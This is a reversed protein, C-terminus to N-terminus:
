PPNFSFCCYKAKMLSAPPQHLRGPSAASSPQEACVFFAERRPLSFSVSCVQPTESSLTTSVLARFGSPGGAVSCGPLLVASSASCLLIVPFFVVGARSTPDSRAAGVGRLSWPTSLQLFIEALHELCSRLHAHFCGDSVPFKSALVFSFPIVRAGLSASACSHRQQMCLPMTSHSFTCFLSTPVDPTRGPFHFLGPPAPWPSPLPPPPHHPAAGTSM